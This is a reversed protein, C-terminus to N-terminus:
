TRLVTILVLADLIQASGAGPAQRKLIDSGCPLSIPAYPLSMPAIMPSGSGGAGPARYADEQATQLHQVVTGLDELAQGIVLGGMLSTAATRKTNIRPSQAAAPDKMSKPTYPRPDYGQPLGPEDLARPLKPTSPTITETGSVPPSVGSSTVQSEIGATGSSDIFGIPHNRSYRYLNLGDVMGAPDCSVWRALWPAYYRAGHYYMGSEEDRENGTFRYRKRAFSGFSTEGFPFYEERNIWNGSDDTVVNSGGLHDGLHYKVRVIPAGDDLFVDGMRVLAFRSKNDMVHLSNNERTENPKVQGHYEFVGDIYVTIEYNNTGKRILKIVRQGSADYFYHAHQTPEVGATQNRFVRMRDSHDWEFHRETNETVLNGNDDYTYAYRTAGITINSLRNTNPVFAFRRTFSGGNAALRLETLNGAGDYTYMQTYRRTRTVDHCRFTENWPPVPLPTDCERGTATRLRYLPDYTFARDLQDPRAPLGSKPTRDHIELVNGTLDYAYAFDQLLTDPQPLSTDPRYTLPDPKVYHETRLRVLRFTQPDYAYRTMVGNGYSILTRQGKANYAIHEVYVTDGLKVHELAGACNYHPRLVKRSPAVPPTSEGVDKPYQLAKLRNLADYMMSTEYHTRDLVTDAYNSLPMAPPPEWNVRYAQVQWNNTAAPPFVKLIEDDDIVRRSKELVNGKFDYVAFILLGAEDYHQYRAGLLNRARAELRPLGSAPCDGYVLRERLTLTQGNGDRAWVRIPRNLADYARLVLAEKSDRGEIVNGTADLVTRRLGADMSEIRLPRNALDYVYQFALRGLADTVTLLNGRIDYTSSSRYEQIPPPPDNPDAPVRYREVAAITRGLADIVTSIPTNWHHKYGTAMAAHTRGANDNADYTYVEWPTPAFVEPDTLDPTARTGPAGYIVRQESGVPNVTRIVQGRPDYYMRAKQGKQGETPVAYGWGESFFPEYTEVVKGKNNYVQWGSVVVNPHAPHANRVGVVAGGPGDSQKAPLVTEGGGFTADGFRVAEGQTRTQLVRGFGDSYERTEITEDREPLVIDTETDHHVRRTTRVHIPQGRSAFALFDYAMTVSARQQDGESPKKGQVWTEKLLGLPTYTLRIQNGNPDTVEHPQLVGYDYTATTTLEAPDTVASPLLHYPAEYIIKIERGLPDRTAKLLGRATAADDHFDYRRRETTIFYGATYVSGASGSQYTYGARSPLQTRFEQPYEAPWVVGGSPTLYPPEEPDYAQKVIKDTLVLSERRVLAGYDGVHGVPLGLFVGQDPRSDDRDYFNLTQGIVALAADTDPLESLELVTQGDTNTIDYTTTTAVRDRIYVELDIPTAFVTRSYTALYAQGPRDDLDRWGRPCAIQTHRQPQGYDDYDGTFAFHTMPDDGREWQTTRQALLHPFFLRRSVDSVPRDPWDDPRPESTLHPEGGSVAVECVGYLSETVTYPRARRAPDADDLAYLETRVVSGRLARVADRKVRRPLRNLFRLIARPRALRPPDEQWYESAYTPEDWEGFEEGIPGQHFWTKTLTPPSFQRAREPSGTFTEFPADEGHLGARNYDGFRESDYQEVMGFGRFEREAGDWYGHHYAYETTLKGKSLVDIVEVRAVVQVPFPLPTNWRTEPRQEDQLYFQTSSTYAVKTVAGMHNDMEQLLYPKIGGTFDLFFMHPRSRGNADASWLLGSVGTGLLDVLRLADMDTVPPTGRIIIPEASWGNGTQNLWLMVQGHDVYILDAAGDGDVDGILLRKPDYGYPLRPSHRMPVRRGWHGHGLNPWYEVSGDSVLVIDQLGDGTMDAWKVRADSFNVNPFAELARREVWSTKDRLWGQHPDNFFCEFRTGSRIADTVGDGDLDVLRVEPDKLNFSPAQAYRQFSRRDWQGGFRLPYYGSLGENTVLLDTRGDGDADILQVGPDALGLGAPAEPMPRPLDYRGAGLNRWYRVTGNMELIDPLGNGFLDVLELDRSALSRAPLDAGQVPFFDRRGPEFQTYGFELPPIEEVPADREDHGVVKLQSLLSVGNRPLSSALHNPATREDLYVLEYTRVLRESGAHTRVVIRKCRRQTRIEFGARYDSFPDPREGAPQDEDGYDFTVSVLFKTQDDEMYDAYRIEKLYLQDWHHPGHAGLDRWYDYLIQNGFPDTTRTLQWAFIHHRKDPEPAAIVVPDSWEPPAHEPRPTGYVSVLGDKSQVEWYDQRKAADQHHYIRAFLGETRPCYRTRTPLREVPVLDEAASLLFTDRSEDYCPVGKSTKRSVGPISLRWGLGFPGNGNGTSYVLNLQPQFGNRGPPLAIPVTFNGTGTHLDPSFTEGIGHLAGGGKPLSIVQSSTGSQNSM